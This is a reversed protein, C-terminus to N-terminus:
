LALADPVSQPDGFASMELRFDLREGFVLHQLASNFFEGDGLMLPGPILNGDVDGSLHLVGFDADGLLDSITVGNNFQRDGDIFDVALYGAQGALPTTDISIQFENEAVLPGALFCGLSSLFIMTSTKM